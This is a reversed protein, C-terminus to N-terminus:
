NWCPAKITTTFDFPILPNESVPSKNFATKDFSKSRVIKKGLVGKCSPATIILPFIISAARQVRGSVAVVVSLPSVNPIRCLAPNPIESCASTIQTITESSVPLIEIASFPM